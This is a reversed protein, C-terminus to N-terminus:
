AQGRRTHALMVAVLTPIRQAEPQAEIARLDVFVREAARALRLRNELWAVEKKFFEPKSSRQPIELAKEISAVAASFDGAQEAITAFKSHLVLLDRQLEANRPDGDALKQVIAFAARFSALASKSEGLNLQVEGLRSHAVSLDRQAQVNSLDADALKQTLA